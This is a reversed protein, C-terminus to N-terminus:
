LFHISQFVKWLRSTPERHKLTFLIQSCENCLTGGDSDEASLSIVTGTSEIVFGASLAM